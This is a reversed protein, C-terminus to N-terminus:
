NSSRRLYHHVGRQPHSFRILLGRVDGPTQVDASFRQQADQGLEKGAVSVSWGPLAMGAVAVTAGRAFGQEAPASISATPAANDFQVVVTTTRSRQGGAEFWLEHSGEGLTGSQLGQNATASNFTRTKGQSRLTLAFPGAAPPNPWRVSLKPLLNQYLITYRRGDTDIRNVPAASSLRRSGADRLVNITGEAFPQKDANCRLRYRQNGAPFAASVRGVGITERKKAGVELVLLDSCRSSSFGIATPPKPDHIILSDGPGLALDLNEPGRQRPDAPDVSAVPTPAILESPPVASPAASPAPESSASGRELVARGIGIEIAEGAKLNQKAETLHAAGIEVAFRTGRETKRVRVRSGAELLAKGSRTELELALKGVQLEVEGTEVDLGHSKKGPPTALFRLVTKEQLAVASSDSLRLKAGAGTATRVGDGVKFTTAVPAELWKGLEKAFDRDVQGQKTELKALEESERQCQCGLLTFVFLMLGFTLLRWVM